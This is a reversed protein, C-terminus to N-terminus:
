SKKIQMSTDVLIPPPEPNSGVVMQAAHLLYPVTLWEAMRAQCGVM